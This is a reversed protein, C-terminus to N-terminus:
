KSYKNYYSLRLQDTIDLKNIKKELEEELFEGDILYVILYLKKNKDRILIYNNNNFKSLDVSLNFETVRTDKIRQKITESFFLKSAEDLEDIGNDNRHLFDALVFDVGIIDNIYNFDEQVNNIELLKSLTRCWGDFDKSVMAAFRDGKVYNIHEEYLGNLVKDYKEVPVCKLIDEITDDKYFNVLDSRLIDSCAMLDRFNINGPCNDRTCSIGVMDTHNGGNALEAFFDNVSQRCIMVPDNIGLALDMKKFVMLVVDKMEDGSKTNIKVVNFSALGVPDLPTYNKKIESYNWPVIEGNEQIMEMIFDNGEQRVNGNFRMIYYIPEEDNNINTFFKYGRFKRIDATKLKAM